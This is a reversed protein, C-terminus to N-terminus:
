DLPEVMDSSLVECIIEFGILVRLSAMNLRMAGFRIRGDVIRYNKSLFASLGYRVTLAGDTIVVRLDPSLDLLESPLTSLVASPELYLCGSPRSGTDTDDHVLHVRVCNDIKLNM